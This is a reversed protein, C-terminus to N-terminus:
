LSRLLLEARGKACLERAALRSATNDAAALKARKRRERCVKSYLSSHASELLKSYYRPPKCLRGRVVVSDSPFVESSWRKYWDHSLGKGHRGGRSMVIYEDVVDASVEGTIVDTRGPVGDVHIYRGEPGFGVKKVVYRAVYAASEFTVDGVTTAGLGWVESCLSSLFLSSGSPSKKFLVRDPFDFGFICAHYHPRRTVEGYEGCQFYKLRREPFRERLKKWFLQMDRKVLSGNEPLHEPSYTLTVFCNEAHLSAEHMCRVAWQRSHELRCGICQGCPLELAVGCSKSREFVIRCKGSPGARRGRWAKLPHFCAM